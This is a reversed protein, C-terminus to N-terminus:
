HLGCHTRSLLEAPPLMGRIEHGAPVSLLVAAPGGACAVAGAIFVVRGSDGGPGPIMLMLRIGVGAALLEAGIGAGGAGRGAVSALLLMLGTDPAAGGGAEGISALLVPVAAVVEPVLAADGATFCSTGTLAVASFFGACVGRLTM